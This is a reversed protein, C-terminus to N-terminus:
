TKRMLQFGAQWWLPKRRACVRQMDSRNVCTLWCRRLAIDSLRAHRPHFVLLMARFDHTIHTAAIQPAMHAVSCM